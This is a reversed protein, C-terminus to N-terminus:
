LHREYFKLMPHPCHRYVNAMDVKVTKGTKFQISVVLGGTKGDKEIATIRSVYPEWNDEEPVWANPVWDTIEKFTEPTRLIRSKPARDRHRTGGRKRHYETLLEDSIDKPLEWTDDEPKFGSWRIRYHLRGKKKQHAVIKEVEFRAM